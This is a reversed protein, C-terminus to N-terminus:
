SAKKGEARVASEARLEEQKEEIKQQLEKIKALINKVSENDLIDTVGEEVALQHVTGGLETMQNRIDSKAAQIELKIRGRRTLDEAMDLADTLGKRMKELPADLEQKITQWLSM